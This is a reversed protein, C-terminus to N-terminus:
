LGGTGKPHTISDDTVGLFRVTSFGKKKDVWMQKKLIEPFVMISKMDEKSFFRVEKIFHEDGGMGKLNKITLKGTHTKATVFVEINNRNSGLGIFQKFYAVKGIKVKLNTEEWAERKACEFITEKDQLGGGPPVWWEVKTKPHIHKVLLLKNNEFVLAAVRIRNKMKM